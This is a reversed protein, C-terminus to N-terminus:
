IHLPPAHRQTAATPRPLSTHSCCVVSQESVWEMVAVRGRERRPFIVPSRTQQQSEAPRCRERQRRTSRRRGRCAPRGGAGSGKVIWSRCMCTKKSRDKDNDHAKLQAARPTSCGCEALTLCKYAGIPGWRAGGGGGGAGLSPSIEPQILRRLNGLAAGHKWASILPLSQTFEGPLLYGAAPARLGGRAGPFPHAPHVPPSPPRRHRHKDKHLQFRGLM